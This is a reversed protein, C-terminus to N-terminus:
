KNELEDFRVLKTLGTEKMILNEIEKLKDKYITKEGIDPLFVEKNELM